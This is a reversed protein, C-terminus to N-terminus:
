RRASRTARDLAKGVAAETLKKLLAVKHRNQPLPKAGQAARDSAGAIALNSVTRGALEEEVGVLRVPVPAVGGAFIRASEIHGERCRIMAAVAVDAFDVSKREAAKCFACGASEPVPQIMITTIVDGPDLNTDAFLPREPTRYLAQVKLERGGHSGAIRVDANLAMLAPALDSPHTAVCGKGGFISHYRNNGSPLSAYCVTGGHRSCTFNGHRYYRCRPAQCLNGGITATNRIQPTGILTIVDSLVPWGAIVGCASQIDALRAAAGIELFGDATIEIRGMEEIKTLSILLDPSALGRKLLGLLDTGGALMASRESSLLIESARGASVPAYYLFNAGIM